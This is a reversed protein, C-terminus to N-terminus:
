VDPVGLMGVVDVQLAVVPRSSPATERPARGIAARVTSRGPRQDCQAALDLKGMLARRSSSASWHSVDWGDVGPRTAGVAVTDVDRRLDEAQLLCRDHDALAWVLENELGGLRTGRQRDRHRVAVPSVTKGQDESAFTAAACAPSRSRWAPSPAPRRDAALALRSSRQRAPQHRDGPLLALAAALPWLSDVARGLGDLIWSAVALGGAIAAARGRGLPRPVVALAITGFLLALLAVAITAHILAPTGIDLDVIACGAWTTALLGTSLLVVMAALAGFQQLILATRSLPQAPLLDLAGKEEEGAVAGSGAGISFIPLVLPAM